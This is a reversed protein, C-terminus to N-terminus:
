DGNRAVGSSAFSGTKASAFEDLHMATNYHDELVARVLSEDVLSEDVSLGARQLVRLLLRCLSLRMLGSM